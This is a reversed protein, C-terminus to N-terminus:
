YGKRDHESGDVDDYSAENCKHSTPPKAPRALALDAPTVCRRWIARLLALVGERVRFDEPAPCPRLVADPDVVPGVSM